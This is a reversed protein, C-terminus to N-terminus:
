RVVSGVCGASISATPSRRLTASSSSSHAFIITSRAVQADPRAARLPHAQTCTLLFPQELCDTYPGELRPFRLFRWLVRVRQCVRPPRPLRGCHATTRWTPFADIWAGPAHRAALSAAELLARPPRDRATRSVDFYETEIHSNEGNVARLTCPAPATPTSLRSAATPSSRRSISMCTSSRLQSDHRVRRKSTAACPWRGTGLQQRKVFLRIYHLGRCLMEFKRWM